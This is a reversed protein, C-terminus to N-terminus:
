RRQRSMKKANWLGAGAYIIISATYLYQEAEPNGYAIAGVIIVILVKFVILNVISPKKGFLKTVIPNGEVFGLKFAKATTYIDFTMALLLLM